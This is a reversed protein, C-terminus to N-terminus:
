KTQSGPIFAGCFQADIYGEDLGSFNGNTAARTFKISILKSPSVYIIKSGQLADRYWKRTEGIIPPDIYGSRDITYFNTTDGSIELLDPDVTASPVNPGITTYNVMNLFANVQYYGKFPVALTYTRTPAALPTVDANLPSFNFWSRDRVMEWSSPGTPGSPAGKVYDTDLSYETSTLEDINTYTFKIEGLYFSRDGAGTNDVGTNLIELYNYDTAKNQVLSINQQINGYLINKSGDGVKILDQQKNTPSTFIDFFIRDATDINVGLQTKITSLQYTNTKTAFQIFLYVEPYFLTFDCKSNTTYYSITNLINSFQFQALDDNVIMAMTNAGSFYVRTAGNGSVLNMFYKNDPSTGEKGDNDDRIQIQYFPTTFPYNNVSTPICWLENGNIHIVRMYHLNALSTLYDLAYVEYVCGVTVGTVDDAIMKAYYPGIFCDYIDSVYRASYQKYYINDAGTWATTGNKSVLTNAINDPSQHNIPKVVFLHRQLGSIDNGLILRKEIIEWTGANTDDITITEGVVSDNYINAATDNAVKYLEFIWYPEVDVTLMTVNTASLLDDDELFFGVGPNEFYLIGAATTGWSGSTVEVRQVTLELAGVHLVDGPSPEVIGEKFTLRAGDFQQPISRIPNNVWEAGYTDIFRDNPGQQTQINISKNFPNETGYVTIPTKNPEQVRDNIYAQELIQEQRISSRKEPINTSM